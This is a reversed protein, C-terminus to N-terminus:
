IEQIALIDDPLRFLFFEVVSDAVFTLNTTAPGSPKNRYTELRSM